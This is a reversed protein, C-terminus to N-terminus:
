DWDNRLQKQWAIPDQIQAFANIEYLKDFLNAIKNANFDKFQSIKNTKHKNQLKKKTDKPYTFSLNLRELLPLLIALDHEDEINIVLKM